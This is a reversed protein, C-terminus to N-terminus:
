CFTDKNFPNRTNRIVYFKVNPFDFHDMLVISIQIEPIQESISSKIDDLMEIIDNETLELNVSNYSRLINDTHDREVM